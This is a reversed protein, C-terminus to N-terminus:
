RTAGDVPRFEFDIVRAAGRELGELKVRLGTTREGDFRATYTMKSPFGRSPDEFVARGREVHTLTWTPTTQGDESKWPTLGANFHRVLMRVHAHEDEELALMEYMAPKGDRVWRLSGVVCGGLPASWREEWTGSDDTHTWEGTMWGLLAVGAVCAQATPTDVAAAEDPGDTGGAVGGAFWAAALLGALGASKLWGRM